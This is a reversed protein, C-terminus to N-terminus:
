AGEAGLCNDLGTLGVAAQVRSLAVPGSLSVLGALTLSTVDTSASSEAAFGNRAQVRDARHRDPVQRDGGLESSHHEVAQQLDQEPVGLHPRLQDLTQTLRPWDARGGPQHGVAIQAPSM